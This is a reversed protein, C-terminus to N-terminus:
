RTPVDYVTAFVDRCRGCHRCNIACSAGVGSTPWDLPFSKNDIIGPAFLDAHCPDLLELLNGNFSYGGYAAVIASPHGVRRTALKFLSVHPEWLPVDEPRIWTAKLIDELGGDRGYHTRCRFISFDM